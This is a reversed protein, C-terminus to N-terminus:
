LTGAEESDSCLASRVDAATLQEYLAIAREVIAAPLGTIRELGQLVPDDQDLVDNHILTSLLADFPREEQHHQQALRALHLYRAPDPGTPTRRLSAPRVPEEDHPMEEASTTEYGALSVVFGLPQRLAKSTARTQAMSRLAYSDRKRWTGEDRTCMAEAAGVVQGFMTRAEVRAEWGQDEPLPRTWVLVPFVGMLSGLLTWGEVLVYSRGQIRTYLRQSRIVGSLANAVETAQALIAAPSTDRWLSVPSCAVSGPEQVVIDGEVVSM